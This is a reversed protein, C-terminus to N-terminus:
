HGGAGSCAPGAAGALSRLENATDCTIPRVPGDKDPAVNRTRRQLDEITAAMAANNELAVKGEAAVRRHEVQLASLADANAQAVAVAGNYNSEWQAARQDAANKAERAAELRETQIWLAVGMAAAVLGVGAAIKWGSFMM